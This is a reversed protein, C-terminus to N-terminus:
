GNVLRSLAQWTRECSKGDAGMMHRDLFEESKQACCDPDDLSQDVQSMLQDFSEALLGGNDELPLKWVLRAQPVTKKFVGALTYRRWVHEHGDLNRRM